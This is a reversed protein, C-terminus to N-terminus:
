GCVVCIGAETALRVGDLSHSSQRPSGRMTPATAQVGRAEILWRHASTLDGHEIFAEFTRRSLVTDFKMRSM